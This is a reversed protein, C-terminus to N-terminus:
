GRRFSALLPWSVDPLHEFYKNGTITMSAMRARGEIDLWQIDPVHLDDDKQSILSRVAEAGAYYQFLDLKEALKLLNNQRDDSMECQPQRRVASPLSLLELKDSRLTLVPPHADSAAHHMRGKVIAFADADVPQRGRVRVKSREVSTLDAYRKYAFSHATSKNGHSKFTNYLTVGIPAVWHEWDRIAELKKLLIKERVHTARPRLGKGLVELLEGPTEWASRRMIPLLEGMFKDVDEHTHGKQLYNCTVTSFSHRAVLTSFFVHSASNKSLAVTNDTQLVLHDPLKGNCEKAIDELTIAIQEIFCAAGHTTREEDQLFVGIRYGHALCATLVQAGCWGANPFCSILDKM